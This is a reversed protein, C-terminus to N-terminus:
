RKCTGMKIFPTTVSTAVETFSLNLTNVVLLYGNAASAAKIMVGSPQVDVQVNTCGTKSCRSVSKEEPSFYITM